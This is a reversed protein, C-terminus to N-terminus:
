QMKKEISWHFKTCGAVRRFEGYFELEDTEPNITAEQFSVPYNDTLTFILPTAMAKEAKARERERERELRMKEKEAKIREKEAKARKKEAERALRQREKEAAKHMKEDRERGAHFLPFLLFLLVCLLSPSLYFSLRLRLYVVIFQLSM